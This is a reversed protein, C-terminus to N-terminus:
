WGLGVLSRWKAAGKVAIAGGARDVAIVEWELGITSAALSEGHDSIWEMQAPAIEWWPKPQIAITESRGVPLAQALWRGDAKWTVLSRVKAPVIWVRPIM